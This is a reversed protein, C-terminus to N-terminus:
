TRVHILGGHLESAVCLFVISLLLAVVAATRDAGSFKALDSKHHHLARLETRAYIMFAFSFFTPVLIWGQSTLNHPLEELGFWTGVLVDVGLIISAATVDTALENFVIANDEPPQSAPRVITALLLAVLTLVLVTPNRLHEADLQHQAAWSSVQVIISNLTDGL